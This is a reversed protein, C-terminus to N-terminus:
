MDKLFMVNRNHHGHMVVEYGPLDREKFAEIRGM